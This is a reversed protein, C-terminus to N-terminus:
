ANGVQFTGAGLGLTSIHRAGLLIVLFGLLHACSQFSHVLLQRSPLLAHPAIPVIYNGESKMGCAEGLHFCIPKKILFTNKQPVEPCEPRFKVM